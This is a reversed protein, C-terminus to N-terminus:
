VFAFCGNDAIIKIKSQKARNEDYTASIVAFLLKM